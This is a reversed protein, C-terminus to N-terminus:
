QEAPWIHENLWQMLPLDDSLGRFLTMAAHTHANILGPIIVHSDYRCTKPVKYLRQADISPLIDLIKGEQIAISHREFVQGHPEVPIIWRAHLLTDAESYGQNM